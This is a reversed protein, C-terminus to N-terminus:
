AKRSFPGYQRAPAHQQHGDSPEFFRAEIERSIRQLWNEARMARNQFHSLDAELAKIQDEAARLQLSLGHAVRLARGSNEKAITAAQQLLGVISQGAIDLPDHDNSFNEARVPAFPVVTELMDSPSPRM